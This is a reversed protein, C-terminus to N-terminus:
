GVDPPERLVKVLIEVATPNGCRGLSQLATVRLRAGGDGPFNGSRYYADKLGEVARPDDWSGLAQVAAIRAWVHRESGASAILVQLISESEGPPLTRPDIEGLRKLANHRRDGDKSDRLVVLPDPSPGFSESFTFERSTVDDWLGNCGVLPALGAALGLVLV